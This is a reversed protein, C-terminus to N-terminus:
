GLAVVLVAALKFPSAASVHRYRHVREDPFAVASRQVQTIAPQFHPPTFAPNPSSCANKEKKKVFGRNPLVQFRLPEGLDVAVSFVGRFRHNSVAPHSGTLSLRVKRRAAQHYAPPRAPLLYKLHDISRSFTFASTSLYLARLAWSRTRGLQVFRLIDLPPSLDLDLNLIPAGRCQPNCFFVGLLSWFYIEHEHHHIFPDRSSLVCANHSAQRGRGRGVV